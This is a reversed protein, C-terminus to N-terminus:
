VNNENAQGGETTDAGMTDAIRNASLHVFVPSWM